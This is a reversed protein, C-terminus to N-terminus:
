VFLKIFKAVYLPCYPNIVAIFLLSVLRLAAAIASAM